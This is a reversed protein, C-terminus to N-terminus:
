RYRVVQVQPNIQKSLIFSVWNSSINPLIQPGDGTLRRESNTTLNFLFIDSNPPKGNLCVDNSFNGRREDMWVVYDRYIKPDAKNFRANTIQRKHKTNLDYLVINANITGKSRDEWVIYDEFVFPKSEM